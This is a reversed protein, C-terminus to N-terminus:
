SFDPVKETYLFIRNFGILHVQGSKINTTNTIFFDFANKCELFIGYASKTRDVGNALCREVTESRGNCNSIREDQWNVIM